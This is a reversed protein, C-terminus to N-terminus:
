RILRELDGRDPRQMLRQLRRRLIPRARLAEGKATQVASAATLPAPHAFPVVLNAMSGAPIEIEHRLTGVARLTFALGEPVQVEGRDVMAALSRLAVVRGEGGTIELLRDPISLTQPQETTNFALLRCYGLAKPGTLGLTENLRGEYSRDPTPDGWVPALIGVVGPQLTGVWVQVKEPAHRRPHDVGPEDPDVVPRVMLFIAVLGLAVASGVLVGILWEDRRPPQM